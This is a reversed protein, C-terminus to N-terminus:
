GINIVKGASNMKEIISYMNGVIGVQLKDKLQYFDLCTGCSIIEVGSNELKKINELVESGEATLKVGSNLFMVAKPLPTTEALAYTYSKILVKGLDEAGQGLKDTTIVIVTSDEKTEMSQAGAAKKIKIYYCGNEDSIEYKCSLNEALRSVNEKATINDVITVVEGETMGELAKKTLIVPQPCVLGRADIEKM